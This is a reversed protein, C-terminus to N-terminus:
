PHGVNVGVRRANAAEVQEGLGNVPRTRRLDQEAAVSRPQMGTELQGLNTRESKGDGGFPQEQARVQEAENARRFRPPCTVFGAKMPATPLIARVLTTHIARSISSASQLSM